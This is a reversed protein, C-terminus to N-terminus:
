RSKDRSLIPSPRGGVVSGAKIARKVVEFAVLYAELTFGIDEDTHALCFKRVGITLIGRSIAEQLFVSLFDFSNLNGTGKFRLSFHYPIVVSELYDGLELRNVIEIANEVCVCVSNGM